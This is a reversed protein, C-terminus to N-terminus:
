KKLKFKKIKLNLNLNKFNKDTTPSFVTKTFGFLGTLCM